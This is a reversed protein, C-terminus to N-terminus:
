RRRKAAFRVIDSPRMGFMQRFTRAFHAQDSFQALHSARTLTAGHLAQNLGFILRLWKRYSRLPLGTQERFWHSFRSATLGTVAALRARDARQGQAIERNLHDLVAQLKAPHVIADHRFAGLLKELCSELTADDEFIELLRKLLPRPLAVVYGEHDIGACLSHAIVSPPDLYISLMLGARIQHPAGAPIFLGRARHLKGASTVQVEGDLGISIQQAWHSHERHPGTVARVAGLGPLIAVDRRWSRKISARRDGM